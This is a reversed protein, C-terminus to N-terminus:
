MSKALNHQRQCYKIHREGAQKSYMRDCTPCTVTVEYLSNADVSDLGYSFRQTFKVNPKLNLGERFHERDEKWYVNVTPKTYKLFHKRAIIQNSNVLPETEKIHKRYEIRTKKCNTVHENYVADSIKMGCNSCEYTYSPLSTIFSRFADNDSVSYCAQVGRAPQTEADFIM